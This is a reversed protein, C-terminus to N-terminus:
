HLAPMFVHSCIFPSTLDLISAASESASVEHESRVTNPQMWPFASRGSFHFIPGDAKRGGPDRAVKPGGHTGQYGVNPFQHCSLGCEADTQALYTLRSAGRVAM